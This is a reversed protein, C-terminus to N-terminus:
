RVGRQTPAIKRGKDGRFVSDPDAPRENGPKIPHEGAVREAWLMAAVRDSYASCRGDETM